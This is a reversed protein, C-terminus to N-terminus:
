KDGGGGGGRAEGGGQGRGGGGGGRRAGRGGRGRLKTCKQNKKRSELMIAVQIAINGRVM